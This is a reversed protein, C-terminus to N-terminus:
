QYRLATKLSHKELEELLSTVITSLHLIDHDMASIHRTIYGM